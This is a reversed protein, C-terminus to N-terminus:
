PALGAPPAAAEVRGGAPAPRPTPLTVILLISVLVFVVAAFIGDDSPGPRGAGGPCPSEARM